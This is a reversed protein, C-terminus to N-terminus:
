YYTLTEVLATEHKLTEPPKKPPRAPTVANCLLPQRVQPNPLRTNDTIM